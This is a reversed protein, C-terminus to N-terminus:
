YNIETNNDALEVWSIGPNFKLEEGNQDYYRTREIGIKKWRALQCAGDLCIIADGDGSLKLDLRGLDDLVRSAVKQIIINKARIKSDEASIEEDNFLRLYNNAAQDYQWRARFAPGFNIEIDKTPVNKPSEEKYLWADAQRETLGRNTLYSQWNHYNTFIHHPAVYKNDRWFYKENYFENLDYVRAQKIKTLAEPSGGVHLYAAALEEALSVFYPRASRIPGAKEIEMDASYVALYRTIRGEVPAEYVLLAQALAAQPRALPDNDIMIAIPVQNEEGPKVMVGDLWRQTCDDCQSTVEPEKNIIVAEIVQDQTNLFNFNLWSPSFIIYYLGFISILCVFLSSFLILRGKKSLQTFRLSM